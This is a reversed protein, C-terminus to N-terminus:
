GHGGRHYLLGRLQTAALVEGEFARGEEESLTRREQWAPNGRHEYWRNWAAAPMGTIDVMFANMEVRPLWAVYDLVHELTSSPGTTVARHRFPAVWRVAFGTLPIEELAPLYEGEPGPWLWRAGLERLYGYVGMLVSRPNTGAITLGGPGSVIAYGDDWFPDSVSIPDLEDFDRFLGLRIVAGEDGDGTVTTRGTMADLFHALEQAAYVLVPDETGACRVAVKVSSM